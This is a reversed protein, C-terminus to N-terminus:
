KKRGTNKESTNALPLIPNQEKLFTSLMALSDTNIIDVGKDMMTKWVLENEPSKWLRFKKGEAHVREAVEHLRKLKEPKPKKSFIQWGCVRSFRDSIMPMLEIPYGKELDRIRGDIQVWRQDENMVKEIPRNGSLIISVASTFENNNEWSTLMEEYPKLVKKLKEYTRNKNSKIDIMLYIPRDSQPFFRGDSQLFAEFLPKLYLKELTREPKPFLPRLHSVFLEGQILHIDVEISTFGHSLADHLPNPHEYDNHAHAKFLPTVQSLDPFTLHLPSNKLPVASSMFLLMAVGLVIFTKVRLHPSM